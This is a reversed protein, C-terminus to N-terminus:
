NQHKFERGNARYNVIIDLLFFWNGEDYIKSFMNEVINNEEWPEKQGYLYNVEYVITNSFQIRIPILLLPEMRM